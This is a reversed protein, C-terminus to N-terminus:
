GELIFDWLNPPSFPKGEIQELWAVIAEHILDEKTGYLYLLTPTFPTWKDLEGTIRGHSESIRVKAHTIGWCDLFAVAEEKQSAVPHVLALTAPADYVSSLVDNYPM